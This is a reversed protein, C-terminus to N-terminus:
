CLSGDAGAPLRVRLLDRLAQRHEDTLSMVYGPAPNQGGLFPVWYDDVDAFEAARVSVEVLGADTWLAQLPEPPRFPSRNGEDLEAAAPDLATAADWFYRPMAM